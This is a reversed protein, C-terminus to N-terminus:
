HLMGWNDGVNVDVTLPTSFSHYDSKAVSTMEEKVLKVMMKEDKKPVEFILEDHIQLLMKSKINKQELLKKDLRIMALRMIEAASGGATQELKELKSQNYRFSIDGYETETVYYLGIDKGEIKRTDLNVYVDEIRQIQGVNCLGKAEFYSATTPDPDFRVVNPSDRICM